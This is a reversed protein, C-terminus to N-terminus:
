FIFNNLSISQATSAWFIEVRIVFVVFCANLIIAFQRFEYIFISFARKTVIVKKVFFSWLTTCNNTPIVLNYISTKFTSLSLLLTFLSHDPICITLTNIFTQTTHFNVIFSCVTTSNNTSWVLYCIVAKIGAFAWFIEEHISKLAILYITLCTVNWRYIACETHQLSARVVKISSMPIRCPRNASLTLTRM